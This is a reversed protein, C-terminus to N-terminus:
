KMNLSNCGIEKKKNLVGIVEEQNLKGTGDLDMTCLFATIQADSIKAGHKLCYANKEQFDDALIRLGRKDISGHVMVHEVISARDKLFYQFAIYEQLTVKDEKLQEFNEIHEVYQDILHFPFYVLMSQCFEYATIKDEGDADYQYFEYHWLM